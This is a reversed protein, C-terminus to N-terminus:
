QRCPPKSEAEAGKPVVRVFGLPEDPRTNVWQQIRNGSKTVCVADQNDVDTVYM